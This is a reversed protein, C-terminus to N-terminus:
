IANNLYKASNESEYGNPHYCLDCLTEIIFINGNCKETILKISKIAEDKIFQELLKIWLEM